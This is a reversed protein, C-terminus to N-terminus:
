VQKEASAIADKPRVHPENAALWELDRKAENIVKCAWWLSKEKSPYALKEPGSKVARFVGDTFEYMYHKGERWHRVLQMM